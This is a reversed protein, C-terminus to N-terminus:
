FCRYDLVDNNLTTEEEEKTGCLSVAPSRTPLLTGRALSVPWCGQSIIFVPRYTTQGGNLPSITELSNITTQDRNRVKSSSYAYTEQPPVRLGDISGINIIRAPDGPKGASSLLPVLKQTLTFVRQLNLILVKQTRPSRDAPNNWTYISEILFTRSASFADDPYEELDAGWNAGSNNVLVHLAIAFRRLDTITTVAVLLM